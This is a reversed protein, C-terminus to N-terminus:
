WRAVRCAGPTRRTRSSRSATPADAFRGAIHRSATSRCSAWGAHRSARGRWGADPPSTPPAPRATATSNDPRCTRPINLRPPADAHGLVFGLPLPGGRRSLHRGPQAAAPDRDGAALAGLIEHFQQRRHLPELRRHLRVAPVQHDVVQLARAGVITVEHHGPAHRALRHPGVDAADVGRPGRQAAMRPPGVLVSRGGPTAVPARSRMLRRPRLTPATRAPITATTTRDTPVSSIRCRAWTYGGQPWRIASPRNPSAVAYRMTYVM